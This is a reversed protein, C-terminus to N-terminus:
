ARQRAGQDEFSQLIVDDIGAAKLAAAGETGALYEVTEDAKGHLM